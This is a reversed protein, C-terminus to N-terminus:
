RVMGPVRFTSKDVGRGARGWEQLPSDESSKSSKRTKVRLDDLDETNREKMSSWPPHHNGSKLYGQRFMYGNYRRVWSEASSLCPPM